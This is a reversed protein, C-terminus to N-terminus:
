CSSLKHLGPYMGGFCQFLLRCYAASLPLFLIIPSHGLSNLHQMIFQFTGLEFGVIRKAPSLSGVKNCHEQHGTPQIHVFFATILMPNTLSDRWSHGLTPWPAALYCNFFFPAKTKELKRVSKQDLLNREWPQLFLINPM